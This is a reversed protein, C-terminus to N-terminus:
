TGTQRARKAALDGQAEISVANWKEWTEVRRSYEARTM